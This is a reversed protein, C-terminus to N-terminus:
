VLWDPHRAEVMRKLGARIDVKDMPGAIKTLKTVDIPVGAITKETEVFDPTLGTLEGLYTCWEDLSSPAGGWNVVPPPVDAASLLAPISAVIDDEHIPNYRNPRDPHVEIPIGAHMLELHVSPWGGHNGYPVCLRCIITPLEWRKSAYRVMAEAAIKSISYTSLFPLSEAWVRHNDGLPDEETFLHDPQPEYVATTSCHLLAKSKRCHEILFGMAGANSDLDATWDNTRAVSFNLVYDFDGPVASLDPESLDVQRCTVGLEDIEAKAFPNKFRAIGWVDNDPALAKMVPLAVQGTCGVVLVKEGKLPAVLM